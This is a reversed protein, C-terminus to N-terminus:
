REVSKSTEWVDLMYGDIYACEAYKDTDIRIGVSLQCHLNKAKGVYIVSFCNLDMRSEKFKAGHFCDRALHNKESMLRCSKNSGYLANRGSVHESEIRNKAWNFASQMKYGVFVQEIFDHSVYKKGLIHYDYVQIGIVIFLSLIIIIVIKKM